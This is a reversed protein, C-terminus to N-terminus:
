NYFSFTSGGISTDIVERSILWSIKYDAIPVRPLKKVNVTENLIDFFTLIECSRGHLLNLNEHWGGSYDRVWIESQKISFQLSIQTLEVGIKRTM